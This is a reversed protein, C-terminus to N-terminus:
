GRSIKLEQENFGKVAAMPTTVVVRDEYKKDKALSYIEEENSIYGKRIGIYVKGTIRDKYDELVEKFTETKFVLENDEKFL